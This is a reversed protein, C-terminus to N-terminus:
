INGHLTFMANALMSGAVGTRFNVTRNVNITSGGGTGITSGTVVIEGAILTNTSVNSTGGGLRSEIYTKIARQTPVINNSNAIFSGDKSFERIVVESGGVVIGGLRLETLGELEFYSANISVVGTRQQVEFLEGVRFNGDQDTSTYFVRGGGFQVVENYPKPENVGEYGFVYLGPYNTDSSNGTGIDLFDHGTLRVQSYRQRIIIDTGHVPSEDRDLSPTITFTTEYNGASGTPTGIQVISYTVEDIGDIILNDGPGPIRDLGSVKLKDSIQFIDAFGDGTIAITATAYESGRNTYIPQPLVGNNIRPEFTVDITNNPDVLVIGMEDSAYGSGPNYIHFEKIRSSDVVSRITPRSGSELVDVNSQGTQAALFVPGKNSEGAALVAYAGTRSMAKISSDEFETTWVYGDQSTSVLNTTSNMAVFLGQSYALKNWTGNTNIDVSSNYWTTGDFSYIRLDSGTQQAVFRGNGYEIQNWNGNPVTINSWSTGDTSTAFTVGYKVAIFLGRGNTVDLFGSSPLNGGQTWTNGSDDSYATYNTGGTGNSVLVVRSSTKDYAGSVWQSSAFLLENVWTNGDSTRAISNTTSTTQLFLATGGASIGKTWTGAPITRNSWTVGDDTSLSGQTGGSQAAVWSNGGLWAFAGFSNNTDRNTVVFPAEDISVRPEISYRTTANLQSAIPYGPYLHEWGNKLDSERSVILKKSLSNYGTIIGYQGVGAGQTIVIRMGELTAITNVDANSLTISFEDGGQAYNVVQGYNIGGATSSDGPDTIRLESIAGKRYEEFTATANAGPGSITASASTYEQGSHTFGAVLVKDTNTLVSAVTAENSRNDVTATIPVETADFGEAVSGYTGYSNNGNTGRLKGGDSSLYGIHCYYTFVSVLESLGNNSAWYGIGDSIIQTFDNAVISKNGGNHLSGDIRMGVCANGFTTVNQVYPSKNTIWVSTDDPGTGPDLSAFAGATVRRTLYQNPATLEGSLGQLTMNRLGSANRLYFMNSTESGIMPQVITSRLEDGVVAVSAPISIPLEEEYIGTKVFITAPARNAEDALIYDCAYKISKFSSTQTLGREPSDVGDTSVFYVKQTFDQKAWDIASSPTVKLVDGAIGINLNAEDTGDHVRLDGRQELVNGSNGQILIEWYSGAGAVDVEPDQGTHQAISRYATGKFLVIDRLYYLTTSNWDGVNQDGQILIQWGASTNPYEGAAHDTRAVYLNGNNRVVDGTKYTATTTWEGQIKYSTLVVEWDGTNQALGNASPISNINNTLSVYIYGGYEVIDGVSYHINNIWVNEFGLGPIWLNWNSDDTSLSTTSTHTVNCKWLSNGYKVIDNIYYITEAQWDSRYELDKLVIEWNSSNDELLLNSTHEQTCRYVNGSYKVIDNVIYRTDEAHDSKWYDSITVIKWKAQDVELGIITDASSQHKEICEYVNGNYRVIDGLDYYQLPAWTSLWNSTTAYINWEDINAPLGLQSAPNSTHPLTCKYVYGDYKVLDFTDYYTNPAWDGKWVVGHTQMEWKPQAAQLDAYFGSNVVAADYEVNSTHGVICVYTSGGYYVIDDRIYVKEGEWPGLWRFKLREIKFTDAM